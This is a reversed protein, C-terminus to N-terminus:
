ADIDFAPQANLRSPEMSSGAECRFGWSGCRSRAAIVRWLVGGGGQASLVAAMPVCVAWSRSAIRFDSSPVLPPAENPRARAVAAFATLVAWLMNIIFAKCSIPKTQEFEVRTM